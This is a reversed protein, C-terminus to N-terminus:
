GPLTPIAAILSQTYPHAPASLIQAAPGTEVIRGAQMVAIRTALQAVVPLSHSILLYTLAFDRQLNQLLELIQAGVSVDLASVPEDAVVLRPRLILARAIGIRQRQGGSFEHPYRALADEQLGAARLIEVVRSRRENKSLQPEHIELPEGVIAGVRMRPDLSAFPDQFVMQMERRLARLESGRAALFDRGEVLLEGSDPEILRLLMRALTTKGSGSEGVIALTEGACLELSVNDVAAVGSRAVGNASPKKLGFSNAPAFFTKQLNRAELLLPQTM